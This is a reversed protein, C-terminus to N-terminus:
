VEKMLIDANYPRYESDDGLIVRAFHRVQFEILQRYSTNMAKPAYHVIELIRGSYLALFGKLGDPQLALRGSSETQFDAESVIRKNLATLVIPDVIVSRYEEMLDSVLAAHGHRPRHFYGMYPDLGVVNVAAHVNNYLLTYGLSLLVNVPDSPPHYSRTNFGM